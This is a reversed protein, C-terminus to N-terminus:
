SCSHRRLNAPCSSAEDSVLLDILIHINEVLYHFFLLSDSHTVILTTLYRLCLMAVEASKFNKAMSYGLTTWSSTPLDVYFLTLWM